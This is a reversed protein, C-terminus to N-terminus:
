HRGGKEKLGLQDECDVAKLSGSGQVRYSMSSDDGVTM